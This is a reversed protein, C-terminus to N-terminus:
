IARGEHVGILFVITFLGRWLLPSSSEAKKGKGKSLAPHPLRRVPAVGM